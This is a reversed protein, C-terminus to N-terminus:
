LYAIRYDDPVRLNGQADVVAATSQDTTAASAYHQVEATVMLGALGILITTTKM